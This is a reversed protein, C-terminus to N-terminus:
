FQLRTKDQRTPTPQLSSYLSQPVTSPSSSSSSLSSPYFLHTSLLCLFPLFLIISPTHLLLLLLSFLHTSLFSLSLPLSFLQIPLSLSHSPPPYFFHFSLFPHLSLFLLISPSCLPPISSNLSFLIVLLM